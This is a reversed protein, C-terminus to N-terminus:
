HHQGRKVGGAALLHNAPYARHASKAEIKYLASKLYRM